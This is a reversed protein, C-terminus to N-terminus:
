TGGAGAAGGGGDGAAAGRGRRRPDLVGGVRPRRRGGRTPALLPPPQNRALGLAARGAARVEVQERFFRISREVEDCLRLHATYRRQFATQGENLDTFEIIGLRGLETM